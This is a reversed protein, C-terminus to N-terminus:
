HSHILIVFSIAGNDRKLNAVTKILLRLDEFNYDLVM